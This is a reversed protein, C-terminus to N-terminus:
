LPHESIYTVHLNMYSGAFNLTYRYRIYVIEMIKWINQKKYKLDM